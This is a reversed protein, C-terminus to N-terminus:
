KKTQKNQRKKIELSAAIQKEKIKVDDTHKQRDLALKKDFEEASQSLKEKELELEEGKTLSDEHNIIALREAEAKGINQIDKQGTKNVPRCIARWIYWEWDNSHQDIRTGCSFIVAM